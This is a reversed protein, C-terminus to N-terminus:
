PYFQTFNTHYDHTNKIPNSIKLILDSSVFFWFPFFGERTWSEPTRGRWLGFSKDPWHLKGFLARCKHLIEASDFSKQRNKSSQGQDLPMMKYITLTPSDKSTFNVQYNAIIIASILNM